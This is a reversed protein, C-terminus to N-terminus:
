DDRGRRLVVENEDKSPLCLSVGKSLYLLDMKRIKKLTDYLFYICAGFSFFRCTAKSKTDGM